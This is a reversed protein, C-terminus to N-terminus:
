AWEWDDTQLIHEKYDSPWLGERQRRTEGRLTVVHVMQGNEMAYFRDPPEGSRRAARGANFEQEIDAFKM